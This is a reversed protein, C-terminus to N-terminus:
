SSGFLSLKIKGLKTMGEATVETQVSAISKVKFGLAVAWHELSWCIGTVCFWPQSVSGRPHAGSHVGCNDM